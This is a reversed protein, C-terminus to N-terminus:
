VSALRAASTVVSCARPALTTSDTPPWSPVTDTVLAALALAKAVLTLAAISRKPKSPTSMSRSFPTLGVKMPWARCWSPAATPERKMRVMAGCVMSMCDVPPAYKWSASATRSM